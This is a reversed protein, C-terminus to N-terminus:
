FELIDNKSTGHTFVSELILLLICILNIVDVEGCIKLCKQVVKKMYDPSTKLNFIVYFEMTFYKQKYNATKLLLNVVDTIPPSSRCNM